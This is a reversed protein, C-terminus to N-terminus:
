ENNIDKKASLILNGKTAEIISQNGVVTYTTNNKREGVKTKRVYTDNIISGEKSTLSLEGARISAGDKNTINNIAILKAVKDSIIVGTKNTISNANLYLNNSKITGTNTFEKEVNLDINNNAAIVAGDTKNYEKALYVVPVLVDIGDVNRLELWAIDQTLNELQEKTPPVAIELDLVNAMNIANDMLKKYQQNINQSSLSYERGTQKVIADRILKNEYAADGLRKIHINPNFNMKDLFYDSNYYGKFTTYLPNTEILYKHEPNSNTVYLGYKNSPLKINLTYNVDKRRKNKIDFLTNISLNSTKVKENNTLTATNQSSNNTVSKNNSLSFNNSLEIKDSKTNNSLDYSYQLNDITNSYRKIHIDNNSLEDNEFSKINGTINNGAEIIASYTETPTSNLTKSYESLIRGKYDTVLIEKSDWASISQNKVESNNFNINNKSSIRSLYNTFTDSDININNGSLIKAGEKNEPRKIFDSKFGSVRHTLTNKNSANFNYNNITTFVSKLPETHNLTIAYSIDRYDNTNTRFGHAEFNNCCHHSERIYNIKENYTLWSKNTGSPVINLNYEAYKNKLATYVELNYQELIKSANYKNKDIYYIKHIYQPSYDESYAGADKEYTYYLYEEPKNYEYFKGDVISVFGTYIYDDAGSWPANKETVSFYKELYKERIKTQIENLGKLKNAYVSTGSGDGSDPSYYLYEGKDNFYYDNKDIIYPSFRYLKMTSNDFITKEVEAEDNKNEITNAYLNIDANETQIIANHNTINNTKITKAENGQIYINNLAYILSQDINPVKSKNTQNLLNSVYFYINNYSFVTNYNNLNSSFVKLDKQSALGGYNNINNSRLRLEDGAQILAYNNISNSTQINVNGFINNGESYVAIINGYNNLNNTNLTLNNLSKLSSQSDLILDAKSIFNLNNYTIFHSSNINQDDTNIILDNFARFNSNGLNLYGSNINIRNANWSTGNGSISESNSILENNAQLLANNSLVKLRVKKEKNIYINNSSLVSNSLNLNDLVKLYIDEKTSILSNKNIINKAEVVINENAQLKTEYEIEEEKYSIPTTENSVIVDNNAKLSIGKLATVESKNLNINKNSNLVINEKVELLAEKVEIDDAKINLSKNVSFMTAKNAELKNTNILLDNNASVITKNLFGDAKLVLSLSDVANIEGEKLNLTDSNININNANWITGDGNISKANVELNNNAQLLAKNSYIQIDEKEKNIYINNLAITKSNNLNLTNLVKFYIDKKSQFIGNNSQINTAELVLNDSSNIEAEKNVINNSLVKIKSSSLIKGENNITSISNKNKRELSLDNKSYIEGQNTLNNTVIKTPNSNKNHISFTNDVGSAIKGKNTLTDAKISLMDESGLLRENKLTGKSSIKVNKAYITDNKINNAKIDLSKKSIAKNLVIDGNIDINLDDQAM